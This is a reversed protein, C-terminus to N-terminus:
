SNLFCNLTRRFNVFLYIHNQGEGAELKEDYIQKDIVRAGVGTYQTKKTVVNSKISRKEPGDNRM